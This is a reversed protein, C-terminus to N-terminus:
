SAFGIRIKEKNINITKNLTEQKQLVEKIDSEKILNIDKDEKEVRYAQEFKIKEFSKKCM